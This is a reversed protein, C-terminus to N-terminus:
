GREGGGRACAREERGLTAQPFTTIVQWEVGGGLMDSLEPAPQVRYVGAALRRAYEELWGVVDIGPPAARRWEGAGDQCHVEGTRVDAYIVHDCRFSAAIPLYLKEQCVNQLVQMAADLSLMRVNTLEGYVCHGGFM